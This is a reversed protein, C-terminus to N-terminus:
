DAVESRPSRRARRYVDSSFFRLASQLHWLLYLADRGSARRADHLLRLSTAVAPTLGMLRARTCFDVDEFYLHYGTDFGGLKAFTERRMLLFIGAIWDPQVAEARPVPLAHGTGLTRRWILELPTPLKRFSDQVRGESDVIIPAVIDAVGAKLLQTLRDLIPAIFRADPNVVCFYEGEASQFAANHNRAYGQPRENRLMNVECWGSSGVDPLNSGLNDTIILQISDAREHHALSELLTQLASGSGHSVVSLTVLPRRGLKAKSGSPM